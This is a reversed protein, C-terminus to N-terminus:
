SWNVSIDSVGLSSISKVVLDRLPRQLAFESLKWMDTVNFTMSPEGGGSPFTLTQHWQRGDKLKIFYTFSLGSGGIPEITFIDVPAVDNLKQLYRVLFIALESDSTVLLTSTISITKEGDHSDYNLAPPM